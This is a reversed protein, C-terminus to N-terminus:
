ELWALWPPAPINSYCRSNLKNISTCTGCTFAPSLRLLDPPLLLLRHVTRRFCQHKSWTSDRTNEIWYAQNSPDFDLPSAFKQRTILAWKQLSTTIHRLTCYMNSDRAKKGINNLSSMQPKYRQLVLITASLFLRSAREKDLSNSSCHLFCLFPAFFLANIHLQSLAKMM